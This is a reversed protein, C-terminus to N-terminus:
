ARHRRRRDGTPGSGAGSRRPAGARPQFVPGGCLRARARRLLRVGDGRGALDCPGGAAITQETRCSFRAAAGSILPAGQANPTWDTVAFRDGKYRAFTNSIDEQGEALVSVAFVACREFVSFTSLFRGPCVLLMPPDLSVSTFSNATFGCPTGDPAITTVVTVGTPFVGFADRLARPDIKTM